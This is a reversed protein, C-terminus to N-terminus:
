LARLGDRFVAFSRSRNRDPEMRKAVRRAVDIKPLGGKHYGAKQLVQELREWTGGRVADPDRFAKTAGLSAPVRAYVARLAEVDGFFWAELEEIAIRNLVQFSGRGRASTKTRLNEKTAMRELKRKLKGCDDDDLDILVVVRWDDPLWKSYGRLKKSLIGILDHKGQHPHVSFSTGPPLLKPVIEMLAAEASPEEVLFEVHM